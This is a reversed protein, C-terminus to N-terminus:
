DVKGINALTVGNKIANQIVRKGISQAFQMLSDARIIFGDGNSYTSAAASMQIWDLARAIDYRTREISDDDGLILDACCDAWSEKNYVFEGGNSYSEAAQDTASEVARDVQQEMNM